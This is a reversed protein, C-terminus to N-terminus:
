GGVVAFHAVVLLMEERELGVRVDEGLQNMPEAGYLVSCKLIDQSEVLRLEERVRREGHDEDEGGRGGVLLPFSGGLSSTLFGVVTVLVGHDPKLLRDVISTAEVSHNM